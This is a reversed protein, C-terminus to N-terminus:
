RGLWFISADSGLKTTYDTNANYVPLDTQKMSAIHGDLFCINASGDHITEPPRSGPGYGNVGSNYSGNEWAGDSFILSRGPHAFNSFYRMDPTGALKNGQPNGPGNWYDNALTSNMSYTRANAALKHARRQSPCGFVKSSSAKVFKNNIWTGGGPVGCRESSNQNQAPPIEGNYSQIDQQLLLYVQRLNSVCQVTDAGRRIGSVVPLLVAMLVAIIAVVTLLEVLTFGGRMRRLLRSFPFRREMVIPEGAFSAM